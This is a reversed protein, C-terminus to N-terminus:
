FGRSLLLPLLTTGVSDLGSTHADAYSVPMQSVQVKSFLCGSATVRLRGKSPGM